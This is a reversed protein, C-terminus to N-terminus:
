DGRERLQAPESGRVFLHVGLDNQRCRGFQCRGKDVHWGLHSVFPLHTKDGRDVPLEIILGLEIGVPLSPKIGCFLNAEKDFRPALSVAEASIANVERVVIVQRAEALQEVDNM